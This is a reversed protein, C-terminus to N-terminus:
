FILQKPKMKPTYQEENESLLAAKLLPTPPPLNNDSYFKRAAYRQMATLRPRTTATGHTRLIRPSSLKGSELERQYKIYPKINNYLTVLSELIRPPWPYNRPVTWSKASYDQFDPIGNKFRYNKGYYFSVKKGNIKTKFALHKTIIGSDEFVSLHLDGGYEKFVGALPIEFITAGSNRVNKVLYKGHQTIDMIVGFSNSQLRVKELDKYLEELNFGM